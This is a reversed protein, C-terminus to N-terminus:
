LGEMSVSLLSLSLVVKVNFHPIGDKYRTMYTQIQFFFCVKRYCRKVRSSCTVAGAIALGANHQISELKEHFYNKFTQDYLIDGYDIHPRIFSKCTAALKYM